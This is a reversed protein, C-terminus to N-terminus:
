FAKMYISLEKKKRINWYCVSNKRLGFSKYSVVPLHSFYVAILKKEFLWKTNTQGPREGKPVSQESRECNVEREGDTGHLLDRIQLSYRDQFSVSWDV